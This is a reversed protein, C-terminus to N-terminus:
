KNRRRKKVTYIPTCYSTQPSNLLGCYPCIWDGRIQKIEEEAANCQRELDYLRQLVDLISMHGYIKNLEALTMGGGGCYKTVAIHAIIM